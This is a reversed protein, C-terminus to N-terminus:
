DARLTEFQSLDVKQLIFKPTWGDFAAGFNLSRLLVKADDKTKFIDITQNTPVEHVEFKGHKEIIKYNM